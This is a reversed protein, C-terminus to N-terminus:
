GLRLTYNANCDFIMSALEASRVQALAKEIEADVDKKPVGKIAAYINLHERVTLEPWLM